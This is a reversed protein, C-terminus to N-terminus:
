NETPDVTGPVMWESEYSDLLQWKYARWSKARWVQGMFYTIFM